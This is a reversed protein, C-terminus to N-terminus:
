KVERLHCACSIVSMRFQYQRSSNLQEVDYVAAENTECPKKLPVIDWKCAGFIFLNYKLPM